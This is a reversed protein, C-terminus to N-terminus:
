EGGKGDNWIRCNVRNCTQPEGPLYSCVCKKITKRNGDQAIELTQILEHFDCDRQFKNFSLEM